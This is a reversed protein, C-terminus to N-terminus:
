SPTSRSALLRRVASEIVVFCTAFYPEVCLHPDHIHIRRPASWLGLLRIADRPMGAAALRHAHRIEMVLLLDGDQYVYDSLDTARHPGLDIGHERAQTMATAYAPAGTTTALGISVCGDGQAQAVAAAFASRNINGLCVFVLRKFARTDPDVWVGLRGAVFEFQALLLRVWGRWTGYNLEILDLWRVWM